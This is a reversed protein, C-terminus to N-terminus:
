ITCNKITPAGWECFRISCWSRRFSKIKWQASIAIVFSIVCHLYVMVANHDPFHIFYRRLIFKGQISDIWNCMFFRSQKRPKILLFILQPLLLFFLPTFSELYNFCWINFYTLWRKYSPKLNFSSIFISPILCSYTDPKLLFNTTLLMGSPRTVAYSFVVFIKVVATIFVLFDIKVM